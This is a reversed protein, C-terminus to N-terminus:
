SNSARAAAASLPSGPRPQGGIAAAQECTRSKHGLKGCVGCRQRQKKRVPVFAVTSPDAIEIPTQPASPPQPATPQPALPEAAEDSPVPSAEDRSRKKKTM